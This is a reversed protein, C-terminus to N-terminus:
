ATTASTRPGVQPSKPLSRYLTYEMGAPRNAAATLVTRVSLLGGEGFFFGPGPLDDERRKIEL